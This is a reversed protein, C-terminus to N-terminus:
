LAVQWSGHCPLLCPPYALVPVLLDCMWKKHAQFSCSLGFALLERVLSVWDGICLHWCFPGDHSLSLLRFCAYMVAYIWLCESALCLEWLCFMVGISFHGKQFTCKAVMFSSAQVSLMFRDSAFSLLLPFTLSHAEPARVNM